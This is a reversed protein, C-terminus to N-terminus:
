PSLTHLYLDEIVSPQMESIFVLWIFDIFPRGKLGVRQVGLARSSYRAVRYAAERGVM